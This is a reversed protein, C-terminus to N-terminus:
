WKQLLLNNLNGVGIGLFANLTEKGAVKLFSSYLEKRSKRFTRNGQNTIGTQLSIWRDFIRGTIDHCNVLRVTLSIEHREWCLMHWDSKEWTFKYYSEIGNLRSLDVELSVTAQETAARSHGWANVSAESVKLFKHSTLKYYYCYYYYKYLSGLESLRNETPGEHM